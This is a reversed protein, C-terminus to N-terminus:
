FKNVAEAIRPTCRKAGFGASTARRLAHAYRFFPRVRATRHRRVIFSGDDTHMVRHLLARM